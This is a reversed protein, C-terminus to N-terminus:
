PQKHYGKGEYDARKRDYVRERLQLEGLHCRTHASRRKRSSGRGRRLTGNGACSLCPTLDRCVSLNTCGFLATLRATNRLAIEKQKEPKGRFESAVGVFDDYSRPVDRLVERVQEDLSKM